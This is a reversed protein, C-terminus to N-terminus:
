HKAVPAIKWEVCAVAVRPMADWEVFYCYGMQPDYLSGLVAGEAGLPQGGEEAGAIKTIRAGNPLAGEAEKRTFAGTYGPHYGFDTSRKM